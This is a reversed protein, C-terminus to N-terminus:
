LWTVGVICRSAESRIPERRKPSSNHGLFGSGTETLDYIHTDRIGRGTRCWQPMGWKSILSGFHPVRRTRRMESDQDCSPRGGGSGCTVSSTRVGLATGM